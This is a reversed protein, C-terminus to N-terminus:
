QDARNTKGGRAVEQFALHVIKINTQDTLPTMVAEGLGCLSNVCNFLSSHLDERRTISETYCQGIQSHDRSRNTESYFCWNCPCSQRSEETEGISESSWVSDCWWCCCHLSWQIIRGCDKLHFFSTTNLGRERRTRENLTANGIHFVEDNKYLIPYNWSVKPLSLMLHISAFSKLYRVSSLLIQRSWKRHVSKESLSVAAHSGVYKMQTFSVAELCIQDVGRLLFATFPINGCRLELSSRFWTKSLLVINSSVNRFPRRFVSLSRISNLGDASVSEFNIFWTFNKTDTNSTIVFECSKDLKKLATCRTAGLPTQENTTPKRTTNCRHKAVRDWVTSVSLQM